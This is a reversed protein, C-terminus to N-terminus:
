ESATSPPASTSSWASRPATLACLPGDSPAPRARQRRHGPDEASGAHGHPRFRPRQRGAGPRCRLRVPQGLFLGVGSIEVPRALTCQPESM